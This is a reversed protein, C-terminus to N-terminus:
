TQSRDLFTRVLKYDIGRVRTYVMEFNKRAVHQYLVRHQSPDYSFFNEAVSSVYELDEFCFVFWLDLVAHGSYRNELSHELKGESWSVDDWNSVMFQGPGLRDVLFPTLYALDLRSLLVYDYETGTNMTYNLIERLVRFTSTYRHFFNKAAKLEGIFGRSGRAAGKIFIRFWWSLPARRLERRWMSDDLREGVLRVPEDVEQLKSTMELYLTLIFCDSNNQHVLKKLAYGAAISPDLNKGEGFKSDISGTLGFFAVAVRKTM